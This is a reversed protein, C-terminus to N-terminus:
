IGILLAAALSRVGVPLHSWTRRLAPRLREQYLKAYIRGARTLPLTYDAVGTRETCWDTKHRGSPPLMDIRDLGREKFRSLYAHMLM